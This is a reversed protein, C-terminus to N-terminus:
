RNPMKGKSPSSLWDIRLAILNLPFIKNLSRLMLGIVNKSATKLKKAVEMAIDGALAVVKPGVTTPGDPFRLKVMGRSSSFAMIMQRSPEPEKFVRLDVITFASPVRPAVAM